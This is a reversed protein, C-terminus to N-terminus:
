LMADMGEYSDRQMHAGKAKTKSVTGSMERTMEMFHLGTTKDQGLEMHTRLTEGRYGQVELSKM